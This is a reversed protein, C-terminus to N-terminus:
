CSIDIIRPDHHFTLGEESAARANSGVIVICLNVFDPFFDPIGSDWVGNRVEPELMRFELESSNFYKKSIQFVSHAGRGERFFDPIFICFDPNGSKKTWLRCQKTVFPLSRTSKTSPNRSNSARADLADVRCWSYWLLHFIQNTIEYVM